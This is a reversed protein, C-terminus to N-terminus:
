EQSFRKVFTTIGFHTTAPVQYFRYLQFSVRVQIIMDRCDALGAANVETMVDEADCRKRKSRCRVCAIKRTSRGSARDIVCPELPDDPFAAICASCRDKGTTESRDPHSAAQGQSKENSPEHQNARKTILRDGLDSHDLGVGASLSAPGPPAVISPPNVQSGTRSANLSELPRAPSVRLRTRTRRSPQKVRATGTVPRRPSPVLLRMGREIDDDSNVLSRAPTHSSTSGNIQTEEVYHDDIRPVTTEGLQGDEQFLLSDGGGLSWTDTIYQDDLQQHFNTTNENQLDLPDTQSDM